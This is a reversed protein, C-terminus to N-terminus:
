GQLRFAVCCSDNGNHVARPQERWLLYPVVIVGAVASFHILTFKRQKLPSQPAHLTISLRSAFDTGQLPNLGGSSVPEYRQFHFIRATVHTVTAHRASFVRSGEM